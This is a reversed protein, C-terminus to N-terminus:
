EWMGSRSRPCPVTSHTPTTSDRKAAAPRTARSGTHPHRPRSQRSATAERIRQAAARASPQPSSGASIAAYPVSTPSSTRRACARAARRARSAPPEPRSGGSGCCRRRRRPRVPSRAGCRFRGAPRRRRGRRRSGARRPRRSGFGFAGVAGARPGAVEVDLVPGVVRVRGGQAADRDDAVLAEVAVVPLPDLDADPGVARDVLAGGGVVAVVVALSGGVPAGVGADARELASGFGDAEAGRFPQPGSVWM